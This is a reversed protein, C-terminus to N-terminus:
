FVNQAIEGLNRFLLRVFVATDPPAAATGVYRRTLDLITVICEDEYVLNGGWLLSGADSSLSTL